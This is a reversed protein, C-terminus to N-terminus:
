RHAGPTTRSLYGDPHAEHRILCTTSSGEGPWGPGTASSSSMPLAAYPAAAWGSGARLRGSGLVKTRRLGMGLRVGEPLRLVHGHVCHPATAAEIAAQPVNM